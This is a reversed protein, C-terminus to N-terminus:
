FLCADKEKEDVSSLAAVLGALSTILRFTPIVRLWLVIAEQLTTGRLTSAQAAAQLLLRTLKM